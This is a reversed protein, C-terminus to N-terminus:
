IPEVGKPRIEVEGLGTHETAALPEAEADKTTAFVAPPVYVTVTVPLVPSEPAAVNVTGVTAVKLKTGAEPGGPVATV